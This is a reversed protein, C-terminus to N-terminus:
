EGKRRHNAGREGGSGVGSRRSSGGGTLLDEPIDNWNATAATGSTTQRHNDEGGPSPSAAKRRDLALMQVEAASSASQSASPPPPTRAPPQQQTAGLQPANGYQDVFGAGGNWRWNTQGAGQQPPPRYTHGSHRDWMANSRDREERERGLRDRAATWQASVDWMWGDGSTTCIPLPWLLPRDGFVHLFNRRWGHNFANPMTESDREDLYMNYRDRERQAELSAFSRRLSGQASAQLHTTSTQPAISNSRSPQPSPEASVDGEEPRLVGPLANAHIVKLREALPQDEGASAEYDATGVSQGLHHQGPQPSPELTKRLGTLYRTKELSEITTQATLTLYYHWGAFGSLVLGIIGSLVALMIINVVRLGSDMQHASFIEEWVWLATSAFCTICFLSVYTLFLLFAKYNRLGVCTALWPCHHDMKLVCRGCTSCHHARDPKVAQCKKCYRPKGTSKATVASMWERPVATDATEEDDDEDQM